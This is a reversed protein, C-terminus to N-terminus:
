RQADFYRIYEQLLKIRSEMEKKKEKLIKIVGEIDLATFIKGNEDKIIYTNNFGRAIYLM